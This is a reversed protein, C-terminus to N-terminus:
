GGPTVKFHVNDSTCVFPASTTGANYSQSFTGTAKKGNPRVTGEISATGSPGSDGSWKFTLKGGKKKVKASGIPGLANTVGGQQCKADIGSYSGSLLKKPKGKGDLKFTLGIRGAPIQSDGTVNGSLVVAKALAVAPFLLAACGAAACALRLNRKM